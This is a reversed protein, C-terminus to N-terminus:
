PLNRSHISLSTLRRCSSRRDRQASYSRAIYTGACLSPLTMHMGAAADEDVELARGKLEIGRADFLEVHMFAAEIPESFRLRLEKPAMDLVEGSRPRSNVLAPHADALALCSLLALAAAFQLLRNV